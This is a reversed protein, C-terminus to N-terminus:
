SYIKVYFLQNILNEIFDNKIYDHNTTLKM